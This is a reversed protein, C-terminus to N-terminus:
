FQKLENEGGAVGQIATVNGGKSSSFQIFLFEVIFRENEALKNVKSQNFIWMLIDSDVDLYSYFIYKISYQDSGISDNPKM